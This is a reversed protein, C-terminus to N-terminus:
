IIDPNEVTFANRTDGTNLTTIPEFLVVKVEKPARPRHPTGKPVIILEGPHLEITRDEFEMFLIGELVLFLEDEKDHKHFVFDGELTAIKVHQGNLEGIIKPTWPADVAKFKETLNIKKLEMGKM